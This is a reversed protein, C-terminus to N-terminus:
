VHTKELCAMVTECFSCLVVLADMELELSLECPGLVHTAEVGRVEAVGAGDRAVVRRGEGVGAGERPVVRRRGAM